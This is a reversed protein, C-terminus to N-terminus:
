NKSLIADIASFCETTDENMIHVAKSKNGYPKFSEIDTVSFLGITPTFSSSALHMMGSDAGIFMKTNAILAAIERIDKSYFSNAEFNIQSVNEIPLVEIINYEPYRKKLDEYFPIWFKQDYCKNGTAYTFLCISEHNNETIERLLIEGKKLDDEKLKFDILPVSNNKIKLGAKKLYERFALVPYRGLQCYDPDVSLLEDEGDGFFKYKSRAVKTAIRGSSSFHTVNIVLDYSQFSLKIWGYLYSFIERFSKKPLAIIKKVAPYNEFIVHSAGGKVFLSIECNPFIFSVDEVIPTVMLLNGLRHNPRIILVKKIETPNIPKLTQRSGLTNKTLSRMIARRYKNIERKFDLMGYLNLTKSTNEDVPFRFLM